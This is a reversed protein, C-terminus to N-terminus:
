ALGNLGGRGGARRCDAAAAAPDGRRGRQPTREAMPRGTLDLTEGVEGPLPFVVELADVVHPEGGTSTLTHRCRIAGGAVAETETALALSAAPDAADVRRPRASTVVAGPKGSPWTGAM